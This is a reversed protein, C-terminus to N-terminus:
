EPVHLCQYMTISGLPLNKLMNVFDGGRLTASKFLQQSPDLNELYFLTPRDLEAFLRAHSRGGCVGGEGVERCPAHNM